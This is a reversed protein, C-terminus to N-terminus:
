AEKIIHSVNLFNRWQWSVNGANGEAEPAAAAPMNNNDKPFAPVPAIM